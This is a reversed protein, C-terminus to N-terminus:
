AEFFASYLEKYHGTFAKCRWCLELLNAETLEFDDSSRIVINM